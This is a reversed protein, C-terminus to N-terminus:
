DKVPRVCFGDCRSVYSLEPAFNVSFRLCYAQTQDEYKEEGGRVVSSWYDGANNNGTTSYSILHAGSAPLFIENGNKKSTFKYGNVENVQTWEMTCNNPDILEEIEKDTPTRWAGGLTMYAVDDEPELIYLDDTFGNYGSCPNTCYKTLDGNHSWKYYDAGYYVFKYRDANKEAIEGWAVHVGYEEPATAGVNFTAWKVGSPLGLDVATFTHGVETEEKGVTVECTASKGGATATITAVGTAVGTVTGGVVVAISPDSTQWTVTKDALPGASVGFNINKSDGPLLFMKTPKLGISWVAYPDDYVPRIPLGYARSIRPSGAGETLLLSYSEYINGGGCLESTWCRVATPDSYYAYDANRSNNYAFRLTTETYGDNKGALVYAVGANNSKVTTNALLDQVETYTPMRWYGGLLAHAADDASQLITLADSGNYKTFGYNGDDWKNNSNVFSSKPETEGWAYFFGPADLKFAGLNYPAWKVSLGLDVPQLTEFAAGNDTGNSSGFTGRKVGPYKSTKVAFSGDAKVFSIKCEKGPNSYSKTPLMVMYYWKGPVFTGGGPAVVTTVPSLPIVSDIVPKGDGGIHLTVRGNLPSPTATGEGFQIYKIGASQVSFRMGGCVSYMTFSSGDASHGVSPFMGPGFTGEMAEQIDPVVLIINNDYCSNGEYYPYICWFEDPTSDLHGEFTATVSKETNTSVFKAGGRDYSPFVSIADGPNWYVTTGGDIVSTRSQPDGNNATLSLTITGHSDAVKELVERTCATGLVAAAIAAAFIFRKSM